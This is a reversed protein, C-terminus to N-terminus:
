RTRRPHMDAASSVFRSSSMLTGYRAVAREYYRPESLRSPRENKAGERRANTADRKPSGDGHRALALSRENRGTACANRSKLFKKRCKITASCRDMTM